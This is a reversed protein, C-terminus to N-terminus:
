SAPDPEAKNPLAKATQQPAAKQKRKVFLLILPICVFVPISSVLFTDAIARVMAEKSILGILTSAAMGQASTYDLGGQTFVGTLMSMTQIAQDNTLSVTDIIAAAHFSTRQSMIVTFVAIAMSGVVQRTVNSLPSAQGILKPPVANLGVTSLPQMCFGIGIGRITLLVNLWHNPTEIALNHLEYTTIGIITLGILGIPVIGVKDFLKGSIPMMIAMAVSQPLLLLGTQVASLGQINQLYIPMLFIGGFMGVTVLCSVVVSLTFIPNAFLRVELLPDEQGLEVWVLLVLSFFAVFFLSVIYFSTWGEAQGKSLALLLTGFAIVSLVAGARDLTVGPKKPTEKLLIMGMFVAIIGVPINLIFLVRWSYHEVIFGSLTPGIAPAIMASIGWLGLAMGIQNRPILTYIVTMGVPMILGGGLGQLIRFLILTTDSWAISCLVTGVTFAMLSGIFVKKYGFRDGAYGSFPIMIASALMYGTLVWQMTDTTSGMVSTLKPLAVNLLSNNLVAAFTGIVIALLAIWKYAGSEQAKTDIEAM